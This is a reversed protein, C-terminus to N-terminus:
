AQYYTILLVTFVNTDKKSRHTGFIGIDVYPSCVSYISQLSDLDWAHFSIGQRRKAAQGFRRHLTSKDQAPYDEANKL